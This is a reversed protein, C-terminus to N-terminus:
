MGKIIAPIWRVIDMATVSRAGIQEAALVGARGHIWAGGYAAHLPDMGQALLSGVMGALVDGSGAKALAPSGADMALPVSGQSIYTVPGKLAVICRCAQALAAALHEPAAPALGLGRALRDAEGGHPTLVTPLGREARRMLARLEKKGSLFGLAAGDVLLPCAAKKLVQLVLDRERSSGGFGSGLCVAAPRGERARPLQSADWRTRDRVVLSPSAALVPLMAAPATVVETYGAGMREGACAALVAAGPYRKSGVVAVLKGRTYKNADPELPPLAFECSM